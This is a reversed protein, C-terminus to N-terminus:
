NKDSGEDNCDTPQQMAERLAESSSAQVLAEFATGPGFTGRCRAALEILIEYQNMKSMTNEMTEAERGVTEFASACKNSSLHSVHPVEAGQREGRKMEYKRPDFSRVDKWPWQGEAGAATPESRGDHPPRVNHQEARWKTATRAPPHAQSERVSTDPRNDAIGETCTGGIANAVTCNDEAPTSAATTITVMSAILWIAVSTCRM